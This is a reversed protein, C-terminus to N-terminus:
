RHSLTVLPSLVTKRLVSDDFVGPSKPHKLRFTKEPNSTL